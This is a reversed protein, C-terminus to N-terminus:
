LMALQQVSKTSAITIYTPYYIMSSYM